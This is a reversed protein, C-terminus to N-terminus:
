CFFAIKQCNNLINKCTAEGWSLEAKTLENVHYNIDDIPIEYM